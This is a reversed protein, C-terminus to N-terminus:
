LRNYKRNYDNIIQEDSRKDTLLVNLETKSNVRVRRTPGKDKVVIPKPEEPLPKKDVKRKKINKTKIVEKKEVPKKLGSKLINTDNKLHNYISSKKTAYSVWRQSKNYKKMIEPVSMTLRDIGIKDYLEQSEELSMRSKGFKASYLSMLSNFPINMKKSIESFKIKQDRMKKVEQLFEDSYKKKM